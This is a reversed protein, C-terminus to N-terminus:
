ITCNEWTDYNDSENIQVLNTSPNGWWLVKTLWWLVKDSLRIAVYYSYNNTWKDNNIM